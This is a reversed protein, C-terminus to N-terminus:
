FRQSFFVANSIDKFGHFINMHQYSQQICVPHSFISNFKTKFNWRNSFFVSLFRLYISKRRVRYIAPVQLQDPSIRKSGTDHRRRVVNLTLHQRFYQSFSQLGSGHVTTLRRWFGIKSKYCRIIHVLSARGAAQEM